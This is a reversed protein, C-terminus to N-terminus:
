VIFKEHPESLIELLEVLSKKKWKGELAYVPCFGKKKKFTSPETCMGERWCRPGIKDTLEQYKLLERTLPIGFQNRIEWQAVGESRARSSDLVGFSNGYVNAKTRQGLLLFYVFAPNRKEILEIQEQKAEKALEQYIDKLEKPFNPPVVFEGRRATQELPEINCLFQRQRVLQAFMSLSGSVGMNVSISEVMDQYNLHVGDKVDEKGWFNWNSLPKEEPM